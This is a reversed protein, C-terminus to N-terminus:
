SPSLRHVAVREDRHNQGYDDNGAGSAAVILDDGSGAVVTDNGAEATLTDPGDGGVLIDDTDFGTVAGDGEVYAGTTVGIFDDADLKDMDVGELTLTNGSGFDILANGDSDEGIHNARLNDWEGVDAGAALTFAWM